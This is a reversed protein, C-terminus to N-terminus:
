SSLQFGTSEKEWDAKKLHHQLFWKPEAMMSSFFVGFVMYKKSTYLILQTYIRETKAFNKCRKLVQNKISDYSGNPQM